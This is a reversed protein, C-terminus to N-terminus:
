ASNGPLMRVLVRDKVIFHHYLAAGGHGLAVVIITWGIWNHIDMLLEHTPRSLEAFPPPILLGFFSMAEGESWRVLYGLVSQAVLVAYLLFHVAKALTDIWRTTAPEIRHGPIFRWVIRVSVVLSLLIGFSMHAVIMTHREPKAFYEWLEGLAFQVLVLAVTLWHLTISAADFDTRTAGAAVRTVEELTPEAPLVM